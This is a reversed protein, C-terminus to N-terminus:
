IKVILLVAFTWCMSNPKFYTAQQSVAFKGAAIIYIIDVILQPNLCTATYNTTCCAPLKHTQTGILDSSKENQM